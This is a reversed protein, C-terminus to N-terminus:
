RRARFRAAMGGSEPSGESETTPFQIVRAPDTQTVGTADEHGGGCGEIDTHDRDCPILLCAHRDGNALKGRCVIEGTDSIFVANVLQLDSGPLVLNQLNVVPGRNEWLFAHGGVG